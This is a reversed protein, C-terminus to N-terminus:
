RDENYLIGAAYDAVRDYGDFFGDGDGVTLRILLDNVPNTTPWLWEPRFEPLAAIMGLLHNLRYTM